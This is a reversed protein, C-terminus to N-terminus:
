ICKVTKDSIKLMMTYQTLIDYGEYTGSRDCEIGM